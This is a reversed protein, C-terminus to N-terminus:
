LSERALLHFRELVYHLDCPERTDSILQKRADNLRKFTSQKDSKSLTAMTSAIARRLELDVNHKLPILTETSIKSQSELSRASPSISINLLTDLVGNIPFEHYCPIRTEWSDKCPPTEFVAFCREVVSAPVPISRSANRELCEQLKAQMNFIVDPRVNKRMSKYHFTDDLIAVARKTDSQHIKRLDALRQLMATRAQKWYLPDFITYITNSKTLSAELEDSSLYYCESFRMDAKLMNLLQKAATSKGSGPPGCFCVVLLM